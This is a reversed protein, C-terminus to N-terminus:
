HKLTEQTSTSCCERAQPLVPLCLANAPPQLDGLADPQPGLAVLLQPASADDAAAGFADFAGGWAARCLQCGTLGKPQGDTGRLKYDWGIDPGLSSDSLSM